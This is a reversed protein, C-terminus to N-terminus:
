LSPYVHKWILNMLKQGASCYATVVIVAEKDPIVMVWQNYAGSMRYAGHTCVWFQYGYGQYWDSTPFTAEVSPKYEGPYFQAIQKRTAERIYAANLLQKGKWQGEQLLFQGAKALSEPSLYLGWGGCCYGDASKEWYWDRIGLPRFLKGDLYEDLSKGTVKSLIVGIMYTDTSNYKYITGPDHVFKSSLYAKAIDTKGARIDAIYDKELGSGMIALDRVTIEGLRPDADSPLDDPFFRVVKDELSLLGDQVAFGLALSTFSKSASWLVHRGTMSHDANHYDYILEGKKLVVLSHLQDSSRILSVNRAVKDFEADFRGYDVSKKLGGAFALSSFLVISVSLFVKKKVGM